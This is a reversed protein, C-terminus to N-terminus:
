LHSRQHKILSSKHSFLKGCKSCEYPREGTHVRQHIMLSSNQSFFKGCKMCEHPKEGTHVRQHSVLGSSQRFFKGCESCKHPREGTHIRQHLVLTIKCRFSKGCESCNFPTAGTHIRQHEILISSQRFFKGCESCEYPRETTHIRQHQVLRCKKSFAKGCESCEPAREGAHMRQHQVLRKKYSFAEGCESCEYPRVGMHVRHHVILSSNYHFFKGCEICEFPREGAHIRQHEILSNKCGEGTHFAERGETRRPSNGCSHATQHQLPGLSPLLDTEGDGCTFRNELMLVRCNKIFLAWDENKRLHKEGSHQKQQQHISVNFWLQRGCAVCVHLKQRSCIGWHWPGRATAPTMDAKDPVWTEGRLELQAVVHFRSSALGLSAVLAFNELMVDHYLLRQTGDLLEWEEQSLDVAVDEFTVSSGAWERWSWFEC